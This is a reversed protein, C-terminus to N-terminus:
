PAAPGQAARNEAAARNLMDLFRQFADAGPIDRRVRMPRTMKLIGAKPDYEVRCWIGELDPDDKLPVLVPEIRDTVGPIDAVFRSADPGGPEKSRTLTWEWPQGGASEVLSILFVRSMGGPMTSVKGEAIQGQYRGVIQGEEVDMEGDIVESLPTLAAEMDRKSRRNFYTALYATGALAIFVVACMAIAFSLYPNM